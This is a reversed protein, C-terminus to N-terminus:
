PNLYRCDWSYSGGGPKLCEDYVPYYNGQLQNCERENYKRIYTRDWSISYGPFGLNGCGNVPPSAIGMPPSGCSTTRVQGNYADCARGAYQKNRTITYTSTQSGNICPTAQSWSGQCDVPQCDLTTCGQTTERPPCARGSGSPNTIITNTVTQTGQSSCSGLCPGVQTTYECHRTEFNFSVENDAQQAPTGILNMIARSQTRKDVTPGTNPVIGQVYSTFENFRKGIWEATIPAGTGRTDGGQTRWYNMLCIANATTIVTSSTMTAACWDIKDDMYGKQMCLDRAAARVSPNTSSTAATMVSAFSNIAANITMQPSTSLTTGGTNYVSIVNDPSAGGKFYAALSGGQTCGASDTLASLQCAPSLPSRCDSMNVFTERISRGGQIMSPQFSENISSYRSSGSRFGEEPSRTGRFGQAVTIPTNAPPGSRPMRPCQDPSSSSTLIKTPDCGYTPDSGYIPKSTDPDISVIRRNTTCFGFYKKYASPLTALGECPGSGLAINLKDVIVKEAAYADMKFSIDGKVEDDEGSRNRITKEGGNEVRAGFAGKNIVINTGHVQYRWGCGPEWATRKSVAIEKQLKRLGEMGEYSHCFDVRDQEQLRNGGMLATLSVGRPSAAQMLGPDTSKRITPDIPTINPSRNGTAGVGLVHSYTNELSQNGAGQNGAGQTELSQAQGM